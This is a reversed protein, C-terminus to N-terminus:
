GGLCPCFAGHVSGDSNLVIIGDYYAKGDVKSRETPKVNFKVYTYPKGEVKHLKLDLVHGDKFLRYGQLSKFSKLNEQDYDAKGILYSYMDPFTLEPIQSVNNTWDKITDPNPLVGHQGTKRINSLLDSKKEHDGDILKQLKMKTANFALDVLEAKRKNKGDSSTQIGLEHLYDKLWPVAKRQFYERTEENTGM